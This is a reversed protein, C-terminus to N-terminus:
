PFKDEGEKAGEGKHEDQSVTCRRVSLEILMSHKAPSRRRKEASLSQSIDDVNAGLAVALIGVM